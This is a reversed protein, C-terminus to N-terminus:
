DEIFINYKKVLESLEPDLNARFRLRPNLEVARMLHEVAKNPDNKRAYLIAMTYIVDATPPVQSFIRLAADDYGLSMYALATNVNEYPRLLEIADSYKRAKLLRVGEMYVSDLETTHVTDKLMGRRHLNFRVDVVRLKSYHHERIYAYDAPFAKRIAYERTDQNEITNIKEIIASRNKVNEDGAILQTLKDWNEAVSSIHMSKSLDPYQQTVNETQHINGAEDVTVSSHITLSDSWKKLERTMFAGFAHSRELSFCKNIAHTGEPSSYACISISDIIYIPDEILKAIMDKVKKLEVGNNEFSENLVSKNRQFAVLFSSNAEADRFIVRQVYRPTEDIFNTMSSVNFTLTDSAPMNYLAGGRRVIDGNLYVYLKSTNEDAAVLQSYKYYLTDRVSIVTDLRLGDRLPFPIMKDRMIDKEAKMKENLAIKRSEVFNKVVDSSDQIAIDHLQSEIILRQRCNYTETRLRLATTDRLYLISRPLWSGLHYRSSQSLPDSMNGAMNYRFIDYKSPSEVLTAAPIDRKFYRQPYAVDDTSTLLGRNQQATLYNLKMGNLRANFHSFRFALLPNNITTLPQMNRLAIASIKNNRALILYQQALLNARRTSDMVANKANFFVFREMLRNDVNRGPQNLRYNLRERQKNLRSMYNYFARANVFSSFFDASDPIIRGLYDEYSAYDRYQLMRFRAGTLQIADLAEVDIKGKSLFPYVNVQWSNRQMEKPVAVMFDINIKGNREAIQKIRNGTVTVADINIMAVSEKNVSDWVAPILYVMNSDRGMYSIIPDKKVITDNTKPKLREKAESPMYEVNARSENKKIMRVSSCGIFLFVCILFWYKRNFYRM